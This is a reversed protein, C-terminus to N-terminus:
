SKTQIIPNKIGGSWTPIIYFIMVSFYMGHVRASDRNYNHKPFM